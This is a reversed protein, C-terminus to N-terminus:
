KPNRKLATAVGFVTVPNARPSCGGCGGSAPVRAMNSMSEISAHGPGAPAARWCDSLFAESAPDGHLINNEGGEESTVVFQVAVATWGAM